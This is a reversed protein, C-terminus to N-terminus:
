IPCLLLVLHILMVQIGGTKSTAIRLHGISHSGKMSKIDYKKDSGTGFEM